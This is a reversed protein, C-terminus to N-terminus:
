HLSRAGAPIRLPSCRNSKRAKVPVGTEGISGLARCIRRFHTPLYTCGETRNADLATVRKAGRDITFVLQMKNEFFTANPDAGLRVKDIVALTKLDFIIASGPDSCSIFGRALNRAVAIGHISQGPFKGLVRERTSISCSWKGITPRRCAAAKWTPPSFGLRVRRARSDESHSAARRSCTFAAGLAFFLM